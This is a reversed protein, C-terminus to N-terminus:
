IGVGKWLAEIFALISSTVAMTTDKDNDDSINEAMTRILNLQKEIEGRIRKLKQQCQAENELLTDVWEDQAKQHLEALTKEVATIRQQCEQDAEKKGRAIGVIYMEAVEDNKFSATKPFLQCIEESAKDCRYSDPHFLGDLIKTMERDPYFYKDLIKKVAEIDM